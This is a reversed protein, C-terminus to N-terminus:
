TPPMCQVHFAPGSGLPPIQAGRTEGVAARAEQAGASPRGSLRCHYIGIVIDRTQLRRLQHITTFM